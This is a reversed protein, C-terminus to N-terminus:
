YVSLFHPLFEDIDESSLFINGRIWRDTDLKDKHYETHKFKEAGNMVEVEILIYGDKSQNAIYENPFWGSIEVNKIDNYDINLSFGYPTESGEDDILIYDIDTKMAQVLSDTSKLFYWVVDLLERCREKEPPSADNHEIDNRISLLQKMFFPRVIGLFELKELYGKPLKELNKFKYHKEILQLRHNMSRKLNLIGDSLQFDSEGELILKSAHEWIQYGRELDQKDLISEGSSYSKWKFIDKKLWVRSKYDSNTKM